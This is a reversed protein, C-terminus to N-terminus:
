GDAIIMAFKKVFRHKQHLIWLLIWSSLLPGEAGSVFEFCRVTFKSVYVKSQSERPNSINSWPM